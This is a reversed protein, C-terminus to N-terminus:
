RKPVRPERWMKELLWPIGDETVFTRIRGFEENQFIQMRNEM